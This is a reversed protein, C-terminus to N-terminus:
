SILFIQNLYILISFKSFSYSCLCIAHSLCFLKIALNCISLYSFIHFFSVFVQAIFDICVCFINSGIFCVNSFICFIDRIICNSNLFFCCSTFAVNFHSVEFSLQFFLFAFVSVFFQAFSDICFTLSANFIVLKQVSFDVAVSCFNLLLQVSLVVFVFCLISGDFCVALSDSSVFICDFSVSICDFCVFCFCILLM